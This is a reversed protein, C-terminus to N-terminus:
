FSGVLSYMPMIVAMAIFGVGLAMIVTMAPTIFGIMAKLRDESTVEYFDAVVAMTTDLSNSLEGVKVMQVLLPPFINITAMPGSMGQGMLLGEHVEYLADRMIVNTTIQPLLRLIDQLPLGATVLMSLTRCFRALEAMLIPPGIVPATIKIRDLVRRGAPQSSGYVLVAVVIGAGVGMQTTNGSMFGSVFMLVKTPMPLDAGMNAFLGMMPPLAVTTLLVTVILGIVLMAAPYTLASKVKKFTAGQKEMYDALHTLVHELNGTSEGVSITRHYIDSFVTPHKAMGDSLSEGAGIDEILDAQIRLFTKGSGGQGYLMEMATLLPVGARILTALQRSFVIVDQPKIKTAFLSPFLTELRPM